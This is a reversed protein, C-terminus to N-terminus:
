WNEFPAGTARPIKSSVEDLEAVEADSLRWGLAGAIDDVQRANKAGPIPLVDKALCWNIAIQVKSKGGREEGIKGMLDLLVQVGRFNEEKYFGARGGKPKNEPSYKGTLLGQCLPSYAILTTGAERCAELVGNTEPARYMLSYQVQNSALCLGRGELIKSAKQVRKANFNSVGVAKCLGEDLCDGLGNIFADNCFYNPGFFGPWHQMYLGLKDQQLRKLSSKCAKPVSGRTLRWPLPAYKTAVEPKTGTAAIFDGLYQESLGFGYVEATDIMTIGASIAAEYAAQNNGKDGKVDVAWYGTRDGWSWAGLGVTSTELYLSKM